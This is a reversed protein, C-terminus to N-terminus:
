ISDALGNIVDSGSRKKARAEEPSGIRTFEDIDAGAIFGSPKASAIVLAQPPKGTFETLVRDLEGLAEASLTNTSSAAKDFWLWAIGDKRREIRWHRLEDNM